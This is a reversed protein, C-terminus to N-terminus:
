KAYVLKGNNIIDKIFFDGLKKRKEIENPTYVLIDVPIQRDVLIRSVERNRVPMSKSTKKVICFDVDSDENIKGIAYSGFIYIKEPKYTNKIKEVLRNVEKKFKLDYKDM